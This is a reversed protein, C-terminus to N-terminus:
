DQGEPWVPFLQQFPDEPDSRLYQAQATQRSAPLWRRDLPPFRGESRWQRNAWNAYRLAATVTFTYQILQEVGEATEPHEVDFQLKKAERAGPKRLMARKDIRKITQADLVWADHVIRNRQKALEGRTRQLIGDVWSHWEAPINITHLLRSLMNCRAETNENRICAVQETPCDLIPEFIEDLVRDLWAWSACLDGVARSYQTAGEFRKLTEQLIPQLKALEEPSLAALTMALQTEIPDDSM